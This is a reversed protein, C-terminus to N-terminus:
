LKKIVIISLDDEPQQNTYSLIENKLQELSDANPDISKIFKLLKEEGYMEGNQNRSETFGDTIMFIQDKSNLKIELDDYTGEKSFGLLLGKSHFTKIEGESNKYIIPLDGAGSYKAINNERDLLIISLTIFVDSIREDKFVSDNVKNLIESPKFNKTSELVFRTATRVYGAYAVAFYWAGWRKGMVDGLVVALHNEDINFYDIFDGGPIQKYALHWHKIEFDLFKPFEDPVVRTGMTDAAKQVEDVVKIREKELSKLVASVKAIVVKPSATKIIYDEIELDYGKLIDDEEGKATLFIFPINRLEPNNLLMKRFEFGDVEPMMIDSIILDPKNKSALEFGEKGNAALLINYGARSLNYQFLKAINLEDEVLLILNGQSKEKEM